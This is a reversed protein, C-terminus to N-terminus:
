KKRKDGRNGRGKMWAKGCTPITSNLDLLFSASFLSASYYHPYSLIPSIVSVHTHIPNYKHTITKNFMFSLFFTSKHTHTHTNSSCYILNTNHPFPFAPTQVWLPPHHTHTPPHTPTNASFSVSMPGSQVEIILGSANLTCRSWISWVSQYSMFPASPFPTYISRHDGIIQLNYLRGKLTQTEQQKPKVYM